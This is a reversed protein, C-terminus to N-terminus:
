LVVVLVECANSECLESEVRTELELREAFSSRVTM